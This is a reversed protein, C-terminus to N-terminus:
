VHVTDSSGGGVYHLGRFIASSAFVDISLEVGRHAAVRLALRLLMKIDRPTIDPFGTTLQQLLEGSLETGQNKAQVAWIRRADAANPVRYDIIAACRSLIADDINNARNTTMFLLGDFYELTRLFEAVIANQTIDTGRELVFVDAEDLLLVANWRKARHFATELNKRVDSAETGLSGSHIAYLPRRIIESYVEATLTKGVGPVGKALIVNGATKGEVIDGTFTQIDTTLIDLLERQDAPLILKDRLTADYEYETLDAINAAYHEHAALDFVRLVTLTPVPAVEDAGLLLTEAWEGLPPMERPHLDHVVRRNQRSIGRSWYDDTAFPTGDFRYLEAFGDSAAQDFAARRRDYDARLEPTEKLAGENELIQSARHRAIQAPAVYISRRTIERGNRRDGPVPDNALLNIELSDQARSDTRIGVNTVLYPHLHGDDGRVYLWGDIMGDRLYATIMEPAAALKPIPGHKGARGSRISDIVRRFSADDSESAAAFLDEVAADTLHKSAVTTDDSRWNQQRYASLDDTTTKDLIGRPVTLSM